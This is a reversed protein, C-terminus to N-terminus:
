ALMARARADLDRAFFRARWGDVGLQSGDPLPVIQNAAIAVGDLAFDILSRVTWADGRRALQIAPADHGPPYHGVVVQHHQPLARTVQARAPIVGFRDQLELLSRRPIVHALPGDVAILRSPNAALHRGPRDQLDVLGADAADGLRSRAHFRAHIRHVVLELHPQADLIPWLALVDEPPAGPLEIRDFRLTALHAVDGVQLGSLRLDRVHPPLMAVLDDLMAPTPASWWLSIRSCSPPLRGFLKRVDTDLRAPLPLQLEELRALTPARLLDHTSALAGASPANVHWRRSMVPSREPRLALTRVHDLCWALAVAAHPQVGRRPATARFAALQEPTPTAPVALERALREGKPDGRTLLHDAYM